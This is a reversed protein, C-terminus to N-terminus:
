VPGFLPACSYVPVDWGAIWDERCIGPKSLSEGRSSVGTHSKETPGTPCYFSQVPMEMISTAGIPNEAIQLSSVSWFAGAGSVAILGVICTIYLSKTMM